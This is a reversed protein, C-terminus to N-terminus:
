EIVEDNTNTIAATVFSLDMTKRIEALKASAEARAMKDLMDRESQNVEDILDKDIKSIVQRMPRSSDWEPNPAFGVSQVEAIAISNQAAVVVLDGSKLSIEPNCKYHYERGRAEYKGAWKIQGNETDIPSLFRVSPFTWGNEAQVLALLENRDM